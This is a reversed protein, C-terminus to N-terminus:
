SECGIGGHDRDLRHPDPPLREEDHLAGDGPPGAGEIHHHLLHINLAFM